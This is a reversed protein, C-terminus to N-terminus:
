SRERIFRSELRALDESTNLNAFSDPPDFRVKIAGIEELMRWTPPHVGGALADRLAPLASVPWIACQPQRGESTQAMAAGNGAAAHLRVYLDEPALPVDCPSVALQVADRQKAWQLGAKVGALPGDPDGAADHIVTLGEALALAEAATGSRANVAVVDCVRALRNVAWLLLPRGAFLAVAKEGGFRLSRGGAIVVGALSNKAQM